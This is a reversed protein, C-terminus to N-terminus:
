RSTRGRRALVIGAAVLLVLGAGIFLAPTIPRADKQKAANPKEAASTEGASPPSFLEALDAGLALAKGCNPGCPKQDLLIAAGYALPNGDKAAAPKLAGAPNPRGTAPDYSEASYIPDDSAHGPAGGGTGGTLLVEGNGMTVATHARRPLALDGAPKFTQTKPDYIETSALITAPGGGVLQTSGGTLLVRGDNLLTATHEARNVNMLSPVPKFTGATPDYILADQLSADHGGLQGGTILVTGDNLLTATHSRRGTEFSGTQTWANTKPDYLWADAYSQDHSQNRGGVVLVRGDKLLTASHWHRGVPGFSGAPSWTNTAPDYAEATNVFGSASLGGAVLVGGDSLLTASHLSRPTVMAGGTAWANKAPDYLEASQAPDGPGEPTGMPTGVVLVQGNKLVTATFSERAQPMPAAPSWSGPAQMSAALAPVCNLFSVATALSALALRAGPRKNNDDPGSPRRLKSIGM